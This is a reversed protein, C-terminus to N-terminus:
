LTLELVSSFLRFLYIPGNTYNLVSRALTRSLYQLASVPYLGSPGRGDQGGGLPEVDGHWVLSVLM